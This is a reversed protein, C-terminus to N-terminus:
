KGNSCNSYICFLSFQAPFLYFIHNLICIIDLKWALYAIAIALAQFFYSNAYITVGISKDFEIFEM